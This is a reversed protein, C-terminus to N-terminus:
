YVCKYMAYIYRRRCKASNWPLTPMVPADWLSFPSQSPAPSLSHLLDVIGLAIVALDNSLLLMTINANINRIKFIDGALMYTFDHFFVKGHFLQDGKCIRM